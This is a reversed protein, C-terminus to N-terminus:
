PHNKVIKMLFIGFACSPNVLVCFFDFSDSITVFIIGERALIRCFEIVPLTHYRQQLIKSPNYARFRSFILVEIRKRLKSRALPTPAEPGKAGV